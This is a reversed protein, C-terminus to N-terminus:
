PYLIYLTEARDARPQRLRVGSGLYARTAGGDTVTVRPGLGLTEWDDAVAGAPPLEFTAGDLTDDPGGDTHGVVSAAGSLSKMHRLTRTNLTVTVENLTRTVHRVQTEIQRRARAVSAFATWTSVGAVGLLLTLLPVLLQYRIRWRMPPREGARRAL